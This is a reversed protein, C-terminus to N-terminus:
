CSPQSRQEPANAQGQAQEILRLCSLDGGFLGERRRLRNDLVKGGTNWVFAYPLLEERLCSMQKRLSARGRWAASDPLGPSPKGLPLALHGHENCLVLRVALDGVQQDDALSRHFRM